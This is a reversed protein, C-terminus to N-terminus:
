QPLPKLRMAVTHVCMRLSVCHSQHWGCSLCVSLCARVCVCLVCACVCVCRLDAAELLSHTVTSVNLPGDVDSPGLGTGFVGYETSM